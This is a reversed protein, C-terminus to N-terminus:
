KRAGIFTCVSKAGPQQEINFDRELFFTIENHDIVAHVKRVGTGSADDAVNITYGDVVGRIKETSNNNHLSMEVVNPNAFLVVDLTDLLPPLEDCHNYGIYTGLFRNVTKSECEAGEYGTQCRCFGETCASGNKCKLETCADKECSTILVTASVTLFSCISLLTLKWFKMFLRYKFALICFKGVYSLSFNIRQRFYQSRESLLM